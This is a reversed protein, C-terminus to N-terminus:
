VANLTQEKYHPRQTNETLQPKPECIIQTSGEFQHTASSPSPTSDAAVPVGLVRIGNKHQGLSPTHWNTNPRESSKRQVIFSGSIQESLNFNGTRFQLPTVKQM